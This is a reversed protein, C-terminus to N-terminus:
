PKRKGWDRLREDAATRAKNSVRLYIMTNQINRHGLHDQIMLVDEGLDVLHTGCSHKLAHMHAKEPGIGAAACYKKM